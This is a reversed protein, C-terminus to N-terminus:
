DSYSPQSASRVKVTYDVESSTYARGKSVVNSLAMDMGVKWDVCVPSKSMNVYPATEHNYMPAYGSVTVNSKDDDM